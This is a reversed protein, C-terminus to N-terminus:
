EEEEEEFAEELLDNVKRMFSLSVDCWECAVPRCKAGEESFVDSFSFLMIGSDGDTYLVGVDAGVIWDEEFREAWQKMDNTSGFAFSKAVQEIMTEHMM